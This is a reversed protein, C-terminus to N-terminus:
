PILVFDLTCFPQVPYALLCYKSDLWIYAFPKQKGPQIQLPPSAARPTQSGSSDLNSNDRNFLSTAPARNIQHAPSPPPLLPPRAPSLQSYRLPNTTPTAIEFTPTTPQFLRGEM